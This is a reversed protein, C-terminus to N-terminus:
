VIDVKYKDIYFDQAKILAKLLCISDQKSYEMFQNLLVEEEFLFLKNFLPNYDYLKSSVDFIKTLESLLVLFLRLSDKFIIRNEKWNLDISIFRHLDDIRYNVNNLEINPIELMAKLIFYGDFSGM